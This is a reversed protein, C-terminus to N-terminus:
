PNNQTRQVKHAGTAYILYFQRTDYIESRSVSLSRTSQTDYVQRFIFLYIIFKM